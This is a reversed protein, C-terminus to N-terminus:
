EGREGQAHHSPAPAALAGAQTRLTGLLIRALRRSGPSDVDPHRIAAIVRSRLAQWQAPTMEARMAEGLVQVAEAAQPQDRLALLTGCLVKVADRRSRGLMLQAWLRGAQVAVAPDSQVLAGALTGPQEGLRGAALMHCATALARDHELTGRRTAAIRTRVYRITFVAREPDQEATQLLLVLSNRAAFALREGRRPLEWLLRLAELRYLSGLSGALAMAMTIARAQGRGNAWGLAMNLAAPALRDSEAMHQLTLAATVRQNAYGGAWEQLLLADVETLAHRALLATGRAVESRVGLDPHHSLDHLWRRLPYWLEYGYLDHLERIVLDRVAPSTFEMRRESREDSQGPAPRRQVRVLATARRSWLARSQRFVTRGAAAPPSSGAAQGTGTPATDGGPGTEGTLEWDRVFQELGALHEEYTREPVGELFALAVLPLLDDLPPPETRFWKSVAESESGSLVAIAADAGEDRFAAAAAAVDAPRRQEAVRELLGDLAGPAPDGGSGSDADTGSGTSRRFVELPAPPQWPVCHDKFALRQLSWETATIVLHCRTRRLEEVLRGMEYSQVADANTEGLYDLIVFARREKLAGGAALVALSDAPSLSRIDTAPGRLHRLLAFAGARRGIDEAGTLVVVNNETLKALAETFCPEPRVYHLLARDVDEARVRGQALGPARPAGFGFAAGGADVTAHFHNVVMQGFARNLDRLDSDQSDDEQGVERGPDPAESPVNPSEGGSGPPV